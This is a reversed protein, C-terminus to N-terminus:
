IPCELFHKICLRIKYPEVIVENTKQDFQCTGIAYFIGNHITADTREKKMYNRIQKELKNM